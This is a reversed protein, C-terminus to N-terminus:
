NQRIYKSSNNFIFMCFDEFDMNCDDYKSLIINTTMNFMHELEYRYENYWKSYNIKKKCKYPIYNPITCKRKNM